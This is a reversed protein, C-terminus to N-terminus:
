ASSPMRSESVHSSNLRTSKRDPALECLARARAEDLGEARAVAAAVRALDHPSPAPFDLAIAAKKRLDCERAARTHKLLCLVPVHASHKVVFAVDLMAAENGLLVDLEDMILVKRKFTVAVPSRCVVRLFERSKANAASVWVPELRLEDVLARVLTTMGSGPAYTIWAASRFLM